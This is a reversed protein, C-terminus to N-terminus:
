YKRLVAAIEAKLSKLEDELAKAKRMERALDLHLQKERDTGVAMSAAKVDDRLGELYVEFNYIGALAAKLRASGDGHKELGNITATGYGSLASAQALTLGRSERLERWNVSETIKSKSM